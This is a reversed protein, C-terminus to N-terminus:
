AAVEYDEDCDEAPTDATVYEGCKPCFGFDIAAWERPAGSYNACTGCTGAALERARQADLEAYYADALQWPERM